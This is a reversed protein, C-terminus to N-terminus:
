FGAIHRLRVRDPERCACPACILRHEVNELVAGFDNRKSISSELGGMALPLALLALAAIASFAPLRRRLMLFLWILVWSAIAARTFTLLVGAGALLILPTRYRKHVLPCAM